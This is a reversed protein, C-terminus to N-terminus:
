ERCEGWNLGANNSRHTRSGLRFHAGAQNFLDAATTTPAATAPKRDTGADYREADDTREGCTASSV